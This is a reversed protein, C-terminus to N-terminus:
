TIEMVEERVEQIYSDWYGGPSLCQSDLELFMEAYRQIDAECRLQLRGRSSRKRLTLCAALGVVSSNMLAFRSDLVEGISGTKSITLPSTFHTGFRFTDDNFKELTGTFVWEPDRGIPLGVECLFYRDADPIEIADSVDYKVFGAPWAKAYDEINM